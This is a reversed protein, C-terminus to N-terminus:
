GRRLTMNRTAAKGSAPKLTVTVAQTRSRRLLRKADLSLPLTLTRSKGQAVTYRVIRVLNVLRPKASGIRVPRRTTVRASGACAGALM